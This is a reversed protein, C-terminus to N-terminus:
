LEEVGAIPVEIISEAAKGDTGSTIDTTDVAPTIADATSEAEDTEMMEDCIPVAVGAREDTPFTTDVISPEDADTRSDMGAPRLVDTSPVAARDEM